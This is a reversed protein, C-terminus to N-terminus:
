DADFRASHLQGFPRTSSFEHFTGRFHGGDVLRGHLAELRGALRYNESQEERELVWVESNEPNWVQEFEAVTWGFFCMCFIRMLLGHTVLVVNAPTAVQLGFLVPHAPHERGDPPGTLFHRPTAVEGPAAPLSAANEM